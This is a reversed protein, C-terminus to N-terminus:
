LNRISVLPVKLPNEMILIRPYLTCFTFTKMLSKKLLYSWIRLKRHIQNCISFFNKLSFKMKQETTPLFLVVTWVQLTNRCEIQLPKVWMRKEHVNDSPLQPRLEPFCPYKFKGSKKHPLKLCKFFFQKLFHLGSPHM